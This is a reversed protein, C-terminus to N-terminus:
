KEAIKKQAGAIKKGRNKKAGEAIKKWGSQRSAASFDKFFKNRFFTFVWPIIQNYSYYFSM